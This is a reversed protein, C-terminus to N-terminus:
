TGPLTMIKVINGESDVEPLYALIRLPANDELEMRCRILVQQPSLSESTSKKIRDNSLLAPPLSATITTIGPPESTQRFPHLLGQTPARYLGDSDPKLDASALWESPRLSMFSPRPSPPFEAPARVDQEQPPRQCYESTCELDTGPPRLSNRPESSEADHGPFTSPQHM